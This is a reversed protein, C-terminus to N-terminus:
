SADIALVPRTVNETAVASVPVTVSVMRSEHVTAADVQVESASVKVTVPVVTAVTVAANSLAVYAGPSRATKVSVAFSEAPRPIAVPERPEAKLRTTEVGEPNVVTV